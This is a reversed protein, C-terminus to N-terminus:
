MEETSRQIVEPLGAWEEDDAIDLATGAGGAAADDDDSSGWAATLSNLENMQINANAEAGRGFIIVKITECVNRVLLTICGCSSLLAARINPTERQDTSTEPVAVYGPQQRLAEFRESSERERLYTQSPFLKDLVGYYQLTGVLIGSLHGLFSIHPMIFQIVVLLAWPYMKSSVQIFGFVSRSRNPSLNSELVSLQFIVGSFGVSHQLMMGNYGFLIYLLFAIFIYITSTLVIGWLITIGMMLTGIQKELMSGIAMTSMMNMGIHMLSGHFLSSSIIRYYEHDQIVIKPCMTYNQLPPDFLLQYGYTLICIGMIIRTSLPISALTEQARTTMIIKHINHQQWWYKYAAFYVVIVQAQELLCANDQPALM